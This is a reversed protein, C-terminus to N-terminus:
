NRSNFFKVAGIMMKLLIFYNKIAKIPRRRVKMMMVGWQQVGVPHLRRENIGPKGRLRGRPPAM